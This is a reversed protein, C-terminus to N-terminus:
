GDLDGYFSLGIGAMARSGQPVKTSTNHPCGSCYYPLRDLPAIHKERFENREELWHLKTEIKQRLGTDMEFNLLRDAIARAVTGVTLEENLSLVRQDHHDFKGIIRPRVDARWILCNNSSRIKSLRM